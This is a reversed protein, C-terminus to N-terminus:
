NPAEIIEANERLRLTLGYNSNKDNVLKMSYLPIVIPSDPKEGRNELQDVLNNALYSNPEGRSRLVIGLDVYNNRRIELPSRYELTREIDSLTAVRLGQNELIQYVLIPAFTNSGVITKVGKINDLSLVKM